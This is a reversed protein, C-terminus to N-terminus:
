DHATLTPRPSSGFDWSGDSVFPEWGLSSWKLSEQSAKLSERPSILGYRAQDFSPLVVGLSKRSAALLKRFAGEMPVTAAEPLGHHWNVIFCVEEVLCRRDVFIMSTEQSVSAVVQSVLSRISDAPPDHAPLWPVAALKTPGGEESATEGEHASLSVRCLKELVRRTQAEEARCLFIVVRTDDPALSNNVRALWTSAM